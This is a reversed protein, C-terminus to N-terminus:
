SSQKLALELMKQRERKWTEADKIKDLDVEGIMRSRSNASPDIGTGVQKSTEKTEKINAAAEFQSKVQEEIGLKIELFRKNAMEANAQIEEITSGIVLEPVIEGQYKLLQKELEAELKVKYIEAATKTAFDELKVELSAKADELEKLKIQLREDATLNKNAFEELQKTAESLATDKAKLDEKLKDIQPYLKDKEEKRVSEAVQKKLEALFSETIVTNEIVEKTEKKEVVEETEKAEPEKIEGDEM